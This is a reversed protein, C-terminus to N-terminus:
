HQRSQAWALLRLISDPQRLQIDDVLDGLSLGSRTRSANRRVSSAGGRASKIARFCCRQCKYTHGGSSLIEDVLCVDEWVKLTPQYHVRLDRLVKLNLFALKYISRNDLVFPRKASVLPGCDHIIGSLAISKSWFLPEAQLRMLIDRFCTLTRTAFERSGKKTHTIRYTSIVQDDLMVMGGFRLTEGSDRLVSETLVQQAIYRAFGAGQIFIIIFSALTVRGIEKFLQVM